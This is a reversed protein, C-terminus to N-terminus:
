VFVEKILIDSASGFIPLSAKFRKQHRDENLSKRRPSPRHTSQGSKLRKQPLSGDPPQATTPDDCDYARKRIPSSVCIASEDDDRVLADVKNAYNTKSRVHKGQGLLESVNPLDDDSQSDSLVHKSTSSPSCKLTALEIDFNPAPKRKSSSKPAALKLRKGDSLQLRRNIDAGTHLSDLAELVPSRTSKKPRELGTSSLNPSSNNAKNSSSLHVPKTDNKKKPPETM